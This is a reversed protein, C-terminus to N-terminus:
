KVVKTEITLSKAPQYFTNASIVMKIDDNNGNLSLKTIQFPRISREFLQLLTAMSTYNGSVGLEFSMIVPEPEPSSINTQQNIEDDTGTIDDIKYNHDVLIKELSSILGPMDYKSPLADLIIKANDGENDGTCAGESCNAKAGLVNPDSTVFRQYSEVLKNSNEINKTLTDRAITKEKIVRANYSRQGLLAQASVLSFISIFAAASVIIVMTAQAKSIQLRKPSLSLKAM